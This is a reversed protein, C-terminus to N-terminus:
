KSCVVKVTLTPDDILECVRAPTLREDPRPEFTNLTERVHYDKTAPRYELVIRRPKTPHARKPVQRTEASVLRM